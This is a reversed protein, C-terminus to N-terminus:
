LRAWPSALFFRQDTQATPNAPQRPVNSFYSLSLPCRPYCPRHQNEVRASPHTPTTELSREGPPFANQIGM